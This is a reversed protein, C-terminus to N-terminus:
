NNICLARTKYFVYLYPMGWYCIFRLKYSVVFFVVELCGSGGPAEWLLGVPIWDLVRWVLFGELIRGEGYCPSGLAGRVSLGM